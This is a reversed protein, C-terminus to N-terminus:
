SEDGKEPTEKTESSKSEEVVEVKSETSNTKNVALEEQAKDDANKNKEKDEKFGYFLLYVGFCIVGFTILVDAINFVFPFIEISVFDRVYGLFIRDIFNGIAGSVLMSWGLVYWINNSHYFIDYLVFLAVFIISVITLAVTSEGFIGFAAGTNKVFTFCFFKPIVTIDQGGTEFYNAFLVKSILDIVIGLVIVIAFIIYSKKKSMSLNYIM